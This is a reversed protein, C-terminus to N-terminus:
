NLESSLYLNHTHLSDGYSKHENLFLKEHKRNVSKSFEEHGIIVM